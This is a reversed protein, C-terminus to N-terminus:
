GGALQEKCGHAKKRLDARFRGVVRGQRKQLSPRLNDLSIELKTTASVPRLEQDGAEKEWTSPNSIHM